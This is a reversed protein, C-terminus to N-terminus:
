TFTIRAELLDNNVDDSERLDLDVFLLLPLIRMRELINMAHIKSLM